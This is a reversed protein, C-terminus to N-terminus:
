SGLKAWSVEGTDEDYSMDYTPVEQDGDGLDDFHDSVAFYRVARRHMVMSAEIVIVTGMVKAIIDPYEDIVDADIEFRGLRNSKLWGM